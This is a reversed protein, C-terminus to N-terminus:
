TLHLPFGKFSLGCIRLLFCMLFYIQLHLFTGFLHTYRTLHNRHVRCLPQIQCCDVQYWKLIAHSDVFRLILFLVFEVICVSWSGVFMRCVLCYTSYFRPDNPDSVVEYTESVALLPDLYQHLGYCIFATCFYICALCSVYPLHM